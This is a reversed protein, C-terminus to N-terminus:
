RTHDEAIKDSGEVRSTNNKTIKIEVAHARNINRKDLRGAMRRTQHPQMRREACQAEAIEFNIEQSEDCLLHNVHECKENLV